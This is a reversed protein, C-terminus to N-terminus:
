KALADKVHKAPSFALKKSAAIEITEGTRPNRGQRAATERVEFKGFGPISVEDGKVAAEVISSFVTDLATKADAKTSGTATAIRDILDTSKM